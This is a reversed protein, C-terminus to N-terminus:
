DGDSLARPVVTKPTGRPGLLQQFKSQLLYRADRDTACRNAPHQLSVLYTETAGLGDDAARPFFGAPHQTQALDLSHDAAQRSPLHRHVKIFHVNVQIGLDAAIPHQLPHLLGYESWSLVLFAIQGPCQVWGGTTERPNLPFALGTVQEDCHEPLEQIVVWLSLANMNYQVVVLNMTAHPSLECQRLRPGADFQVEERGVAGIVVFDLANPLIQVVVHGAIVRTACHRFQHFFDISVEALPPACQAM